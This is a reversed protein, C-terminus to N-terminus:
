DTLDNYNTPSYDGGSPSQGAKCRLDVVKSHVVCQKYEIGLLVSM